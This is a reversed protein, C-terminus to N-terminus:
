RRRRWRQFLFQNEDVILQELDFPREVDDGGRTLRPGSGGVVGPSTTLDLEDILDADGLAGNLMPGGEAQIVAAGFRRGVEAIAGRLDVEVAGTRVIEIGDAADIVARETTVVFGAGSRFLDTSTDVNGSRTVLGIRQGAREPPGYGEGQATGAGVLVVDALSRLRLLVALDNPSSLGGSVGDVVTSGDLSAVMCLQVWPRQASGEGLPAAYAEEVTLDEAPTPLLRRM